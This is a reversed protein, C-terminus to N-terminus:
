RYFREELWCRVETETTLIDRRPTKPDYVQWQQSGDANEIMRIKPEGDRLLFDFLTATAWDIGNFISHLLDSQLAHSVFGKHTSLSATSDSLKHFKM